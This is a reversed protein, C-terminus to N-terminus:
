ASLKRKILAIGSFASGLLLLTTAGDPVAKSSASFTWEAPNDSVTPDQSSFSWSLYSDDYGSASVIGTGSVIVFGPGQSVIWSSLLEFSFSGATWFGSIPTSTAFQWPSAITVPSNNALSTFSGQRGNVATNYWSLVESATGASSTDFSAQGTFGISGTVPVAKTVQAVLMLAAAAVALKSIINKM